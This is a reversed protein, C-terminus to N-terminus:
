RADGGNRAPVGPGRAPAAGVRAKAGEAAGRSRVGPRRERRWRGLTGVLGEPAFVAAVIIAVGVLIQYGEPWWSSLGEKVIVLLTAGLLPGVLTGMGGLVTWVIADGSVVWSFFDANAYEFLTGYLAGSLGAFLGAIVFAVLRLRRVNYGLLEARAGNERVAEFVRGLPLRVIRQLATYALAVFGLAFLLKQVPTEIPVELGALRLAQLSFSIGDNGATVSKWSMAVFYFVQSFILTVVIFSHGRVRVSIAGVVLGLLLTAAAAVATGAFPGAGARTAMLAISYAGVGFFLSHAISLMGTYGLVLDFSMAFLGWVLIETALMLGFDDLIRPLLLAAVAFVALVLAPSRRPSM